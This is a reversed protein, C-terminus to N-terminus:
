ESPTPKKAQLAGQAGPESWAGAGPGRTPLWHLCCTMECCTSFAETATSGPFRSAVSNTLNRGSMRIIMSILATHRCTWWDSVGCVAILIRTTRDSFLQKKM